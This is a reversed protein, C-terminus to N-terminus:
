STQEDLFDDISLQRPDVEDPTQTATPCTHGYDFIGECAEVCATCVRHGRVATLDGVSGDPRTCAGVWIRDTVPMTIHTGVPTRPDESVTVVYEYVVPERTM